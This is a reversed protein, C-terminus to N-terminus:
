LLPNKARFKLHQLSIYFFIISSYECFTAQPKIKKYTNIFSRKKQEPNKTERKSIKTQTPKNTKKYIAPHEQM